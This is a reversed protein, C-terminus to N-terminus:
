GDSQRGQGERVGIQGKYEMDTTLIHDTLWNRLYDNVTKALHLHAEPDLGYTAKLTELWEIFTHHERRHADLAAYGAEEMREEEWRFHNKAYEDLNQLVWQVPEGREEAAAVRNIIQILRKHDEDLVPDGVSFSEQWELLAV